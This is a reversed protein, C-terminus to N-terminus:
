AHTVHFIFKNITLRACTIKEHTNNLKIIQHLCIISASISCSRSHQLQLSCVQPLCGFSQEAVHYSPINKFSNKDFSKEGTKKRKSIVYMDVETKM